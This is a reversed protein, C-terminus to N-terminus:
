LILEKVRNLANFYKVLEELNKVDVAADPNLLHFKWEEKQNWLMVLHYESGIERRINLEVENAYAKFGNWEQENSFAGAFVGEIIVIPKM